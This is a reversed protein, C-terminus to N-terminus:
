ILFMLIGLIIFIMNIILRSKKTGDRRMSDIKNAVKKNTAFLLALILPLVFVFNYWILYVFGSFFTANDHLLGLVFIYPGGTCPFEFMGVLVGMFLATFISAKNIYKAIIHHASKPIALKIPFNPIYSDLIDVVAFVVMVMAGFKALGNPVNFFSLVKLVGVGILIYTIAIGLIYLSGTFLVSKRDRGISFLFAITLFLISFACPNISDLMAALTVVGFTLHEMTEINGNIKIGRVRM